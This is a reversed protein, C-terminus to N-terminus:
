WPLWRSLFGSLGMVGFAFILLLVAGVLYSVFTGLGRMFTAKKNM